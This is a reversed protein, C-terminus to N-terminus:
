KILVKALLATLLAIIGIIIFGQQLNLVDGIIGLLVPGMFMGLGYIAQFFGMATSRKNQPMDKISLGMLMPFSLGRGFGAIIQTIILLAFSTFPITITFIGVLIFGFVIINKEGYRKSLTRGALLSAFATPLTSCITLLGVQLKSIHLFQNAFMPTFGYVTSFTVVQSLIAIVSVVILTKNTAVSKFGEVTLGTPDIDKKEVLFFSFIVAATAIVAAMIFPAEWGFIDAAYSGLFIGITQGITNYFNITGIAKSTEEHKYYSAFLITFDVWTAAAVGALGRFILILTLDKFLLLGLASFLSFSLGISIFLKRKHLRDSMVGVPIRLLMQVFGYSGVIIGALKHTAGLSEIYLTLVPVYTYLSAWYLLTVFCFLPIRYNKRSNEINM